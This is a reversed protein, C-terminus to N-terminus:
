YIVLKGEWRAKKWDWNSCENTNTNYKSCIWYGDVWAVKNPINEYICIHHKSIWHHRYWGEKITFCYKYNPPTAVKEKPAPPATVLPNEDSNFQTSVSSQKAEVPNVLAICLSCLFVLRWTSVM